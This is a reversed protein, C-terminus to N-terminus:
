QCSLTEKRFEQREFSCKPFISREGIRGLRLFCNRPRKTNLDGVPNRLFAEYLSQGM